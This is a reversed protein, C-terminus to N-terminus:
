PTAGGECRAAGPPGATLAQDAAVYRFGAAPKCIQCGAVSAAKQAELQPSMQDHHVTTASNGDYRRVQRQSHPAQGQSLVQRRATAFGQNKLLSYDGFNRRHKVTLHERTGAQRTSNSDLSQSPPPLHVSITFSHHAPDQGLERSTTRSSAETNWM